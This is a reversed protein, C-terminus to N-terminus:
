KSKKRLYNQEFASIGTLLFFLSLLYDLGLVLGKKLVYINIKSHTKYQQIYLKSKTAFVQVLFIRYNKTCVDM